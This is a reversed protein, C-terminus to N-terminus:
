PPPSNRILSTGMYQIRHKIQLATAAVGFSGALWRPVPCLLYRFATATEGSEGSAKFLRTRDEACEM